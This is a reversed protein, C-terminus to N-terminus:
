LDVVGIFGSGVMGDLYECVQDTVQDEPVEDFAEVLGKVISRVDHNGDCKQWIFIGTSNIVKIQNTDPNFLLGGDEDEERLIVDPNRLYRIVMQPEIM